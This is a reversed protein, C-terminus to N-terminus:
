RIHVPTKGTQMLPCWTGAQHRHLGSSPMIYAGLISNCITTLQRASTPFGVWAEVLAALMSLRQAM